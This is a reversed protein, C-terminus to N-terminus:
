ISLAYGVQDLFNIEALNRELENISNIGNLYQNTYEEIKQNLKRYKTRTRKPPNGGDLLVVQLEEEAQFSKFFMILEFISPHSKGIRKNWDRHKGELNNTTRTSYNRYHNWIEPPFRSNEDIWTDIMYDFLKELAENQPADAHILLWADTIREIPVFALSCVRKVARKIQSNPKKYENVLGFEQVKRWISQTFHFLCGHVQTLPLIYNIAEIVAIEFDILIKEPNFQLRNARSVNILLRFLRVYTKSLKTQYYLM